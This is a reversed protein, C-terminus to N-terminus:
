LLEYFDPYHESIYHALKGELDKNTWYAKKMQSRVASVFDLDDTYRLMDKRLSEFVIDRSLSDLFISWIDRSEASIGKNVNEALLYIDPLLIEWAKNFLYTIGYKEPSIEGYLGRSGAIQEWKRREQDIWYRTSHEIEFDFYWRSIRLLTDQFPTISFNSESLVPTAGQKENYPLADYSLAIAEVGAHYEFAAWFMSLIGGNEELLQDIRVIDSFRIREIKGNEIRGLANRSIQLPEQLDILKKNAKQRILRFYHGADALSIAGGESFVDQLAYTQLWTPYELPEQPISTAKSIQATAIQLANSNFKEQADKYAEYRKSELITKWIAILDDTHCAVVTTQGPVHQRITCQQKRCVLTERQLLMLVDLM